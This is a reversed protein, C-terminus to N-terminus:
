CKPMSLLEKLGKLQKQEDTQLDEDDSFPKTDIIFLSISLGMQPAALGVGYANYMTDYM